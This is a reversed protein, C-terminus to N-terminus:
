SWICCRRCEGGGLCFIFVVFFPNEACEKVCVKRQGAVNEGGGEPGKEPEAQFTLFFDVTDLPGRSAIAQCNNKFHLGTAILCLCVGSVM